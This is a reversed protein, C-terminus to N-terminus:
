GDTTVVQDVLELFAYHEDPDYRVDSYVQVQVQAQGAVVAEGNVMMAVPLDTFVTQTEAM